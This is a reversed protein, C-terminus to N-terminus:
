NGKLEGTKFTLDRNFVAPYTNTVFGSINSDSTHPRKVLDNSVYFISAEPPTPRLAGGSMSKQRIAADFSLRQWVDKGKNQEMISHFCCLIHTDELM